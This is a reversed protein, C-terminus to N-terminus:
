LTLRTALRALELALGLSSGLLSLSMRFTGRLIQLLLKLRINITDYHSFKYLDNSHVNAHSSYTFSNAIYCHKLM